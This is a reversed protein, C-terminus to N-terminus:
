LPARVQNPHRVPCRRSRPFHSFDLSPRRPFLRRPLPRKRPHLSPLLGSWAPATAVAKPVQASALPDLPGSPALLSRMTGLTPNTGLNRLGAPTTPAPASATNSTTLNLTPLSTPLPAPAAEPESLLGQWQQSLAASASKLATASQQAFTSTSTSSPPTVPPATPSAPAVPKGPASTTIESTVAVM